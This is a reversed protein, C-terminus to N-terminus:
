PGVQFSAGVQSIPLSVVLEWAGLEVQLALLPTTLTRMELFGVLGEGAAHAEDSLPGTRPQPTPPGALSQTVRSGRQVETQRMQWGFFALLWM